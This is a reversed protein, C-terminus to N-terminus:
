LQVPWANPNEAGVRTWWSAVEARAVLAVICGGFGAGTLRAGYAGAAVASAVLRDIGPTSVEYDVALSRHSESMLAGFRAVDDSHLADVAALVRGNESVVHRARKLMEGDSLSVVCEATADRLSRLHLASAAAEVAARRSNYAGDALKREEGSHIVVFHFAPSLAVLSATGTRCDLLLAEGPRGVACAMQDLIGCQVGCYENEAAQAARAIEGDVMEAGILSLAARIVAVELAASSSVGAGLPVDSRVLVNVPPVDFGRKSL